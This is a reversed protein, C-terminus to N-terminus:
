LKLYDSKGYLKIAQVFRMHETRSWRGTKKGKLAATTENKFNKRKDNKSSAMRIAALKHNLLYKPKRVAEELTDTVLQAFDETNESIQAKQGDTNDLSALLPEDIM